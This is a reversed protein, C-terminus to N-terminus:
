IPPAHRDPDFDNPARIARDDPQDPLDFGLVKRLKLSLDLRGPAGDNHIHLFYREYIEIHNPEEDLTLRLPM